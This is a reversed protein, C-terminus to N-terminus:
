DMIIEFNTGQQAGSLAEATTSVECLFMAEVLRPHAELLARRFAQRAVSTVQGSLPGYVDEALRGSASAEDEEPHVQLRADVQVALFRIARLTDTVTPHALAERSGFPHIVNQKNCLHCRDLLSIDGVKANSLAFTRM